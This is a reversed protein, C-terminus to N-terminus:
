SLNPMFFEVIMKLLPLAKKIVKRDNADDARKGGHFTNNRITYIMSLLQSALLNIDDQESKGLIYRNYAEFDIPSWVPHRENVTYRINIVGNLRQGYEDFEIDCGHWRPIRYVFFNTSAHMILDHKLDTSFENYASNIEDREHPIGEVMPILVTGDKRTCIVGEKIKLHPLRGNREAWTTYLTTYINNYATWYCIFEQFPQSSQAAIQRVLEVMSYANPIEYPALM